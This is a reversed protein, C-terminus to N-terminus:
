PDIVLLDTYHNFREKDIVDNPLTITDVENPNSVVEFSWTGDYQAVVSVGAIGFTHPTRSAVIEDSEAGAVEVLDDSRGYVYIRTM